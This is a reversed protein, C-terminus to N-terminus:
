FSLLNFKRRYYIIFSLYYIIFLCPEPIGTGILVVNTNGGNSQFTVTNTFPIEAIPSFRFTVVNSSLPAVAYPSGSQVSFIPVMLNIVNGNLPGNGLNEVSVPLDFDDGVVVDGFDVELPIVNLIPAPDLEYAGLDFGAGMPRPNGICDHNISVVTGTDVCPSGVALQYNLAAANDFMPDVNLNGTGTGYGGDIDCYDVVNGPSIEAGDNNWLISNTIAITSGIIGGYKNDAVTCERMQMSSSGSIFLGGGENLASNRTFISNETDVKSSSNVYISGGRGNAHYASNSVFLSDSIKILSSGYGFIAGANRAANGAFVCPPATNSGSFAAYVTVTSAGYVYMAGGANSSINNEFLPNVATIKSAAYLGAAGGHNNAFNDILRPSAGNTPMFSVSCLNTAYIAGGYRSARNNAFLVDGYASLQGGSLIYAAGGDTASNNTVTFTGNMSILHISGGGSFIAGSYGLASSAANAVNGNISCDICEILGITAVGIGGVQNSAINYSIETDRFAFKGATSLYAGAIFNDSVNYNIRSGNIAELTALSNWFIGGCANAVRNSVVDTNDLIFDGTTANAFLGGGIYAYNNAIVSNRFSYSGALVAYMGGGSGITPVAFNNSIVANVFSGTSLMAFIGAGNTALCYSIASDKMTIESDLAYIGGGNRSAWGLTIQSNDLLSLSSNTLYFAGGDKVSYNFGAYCKEGSLVIDSNVAYVGGGNGNTCQNAGGGSPYGIYTNTGQVLATADLAYIGGGINAAYNGVIWCNQDVVLEGGNVTIGGGYSSAHNFAFITNTMAVFAGPQIYIGGGRAAANNHIICNVLVGTTGSIFEIGGGQGATSGGTIDINFLNLECGALVDIVSGAVAGEIVSRVSPVIGSFDLLYGGRFTLKKNGTINFTEAFVGTSLLLTDGSVAAAVAAAVTAYEAGGSTINTVVASFTLQCALAAVLSLTLFLKKM